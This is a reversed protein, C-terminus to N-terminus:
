RRLLDPRMWLSVHAPQRTESVGVAFLIELVVFMPLEEPRGLGEIGIPNDIKFSSSDGVVLTDALVGLLAVGLPVIVGIVAFPLWRHSLLRGDPFLMPLYVLALALM